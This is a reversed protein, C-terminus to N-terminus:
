VAEALVHRALRLRSAGIAQRISLERERMASRVQMMGSINLCVVLLVAGTLTMAVAQLRWFQSRDVVGLPDYAVVAGTTLANTGPYEKALQATIGAVAASAQEVSVGEALRGHLRFLEKGRDLRANSEAALDPHRELPVFLERGQFGLHGQFQDPAIGAVVYPANDLKITKGIIEPDSDLHTQWFQYSLIVSADPQGDFGPGQAPAVGLTQFYDNSVYMPWLLMREEGPLTINAPATAWAFIEIGTGANRLDMYDAYSWSNTTPRSQNATTIIEVLGDTNVGPPPTRPIRALYPVAIVPAMGIGLSVICVLAFSPAKVLSRAAYVLDNWYGRM